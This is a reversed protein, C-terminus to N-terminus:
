RKKAKLPAVGAQLKRWEDMENTAAPKRAAPQPPAAPEPTLVEGLLARLIAQKSHYHAYLGSQSLGARRAIKGTSTGGFGHTGFEILAADLILRKRAEPTLRERKKRQAARARTPKRTKQTMRTDRLSILMGAARIMQLPASGPVAGVYRISVSSRDNTYYVSWM